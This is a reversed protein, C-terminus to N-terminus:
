SGRRPRRGVRGPRGATVQATATRSAWAPVLRVRSAAAAVQCGCATIADSDGCRGNVIWCSTLTIASVSGTAPNACGTWVRPIILNPHGSRMAPPGGLLYADTETEATSNGPHDVVFIRSYVGVDRRQGVPLLGYALRNPIQDVSSIGRSERDQRQTSTTPTSVRPSPTRSRPTLHSFCRRNRCWQRQRSH